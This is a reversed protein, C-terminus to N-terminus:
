RKWDPGYVSYQLLIRLWNLWFDSAIWKICALEGTDGRSDNVFSDFGGSSDNDYGEDPQGFTHVFDLFSPRVKVATFIKRFADETINFPAWSHSQHILRSPTIHM